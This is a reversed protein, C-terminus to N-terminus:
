RTSSVSLSATATPVDDLASNVPQQEAEKAAAAALLAEWESQMSRFVAVHEGLKAYLQSCGLRTERFARVMNGRVENVTEQQQPTLQRSSLGNDSEKM